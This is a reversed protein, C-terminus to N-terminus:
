LVLRDFMGINTCPYNPVWCTLISASEEGNSAVDVVILCGPTQETM